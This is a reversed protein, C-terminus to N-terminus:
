EVEGYWSYASGNRGRAPNSLVTSSGGVGPEDFFHSSVDVIRVSCVASLGPPRTKKREAPWSGHYRSSYRRSPKLTSHMWLRGIPPLSGMSRTLM